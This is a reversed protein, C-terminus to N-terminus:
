EQQPSLRYLTAAGALLLLGLVIARIDPGEDLRRGPEVVNLEEVELYTEGQRDPDHYKWVGVVEVVPGRHHYGGPTDLTQALRAPIKIGIGVNSGSPPGGEAIPSEVYIDGNLQTWMWGDGRFGYDGVLEGEVTVQRGGYEASHEVLETVTAQESALAASPILVVVMIALVAIRLRRM